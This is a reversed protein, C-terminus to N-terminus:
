RWLRRSNDDAGKLRGYKGVEIDSRLIKAPNGGVISRSPVDDFVVAGAAVISEDGITVGPMIIAGGGVFCRNGIRIPQTNGRTDRSIILTKFAILTDQGVFVSRRKGSIVSGSLSVTSTSGILMGHKARLWTRRVRMVLRRLGGLQNLSRIGM